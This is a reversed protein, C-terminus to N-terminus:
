AGGGKPGTASPSPTGTGATPGASRAPDSPAAPAEPESPDASAEPESPAASAAPESLGASVAPDSLGAPVVPKSLGAPVARESLDALVAPGSLGASVASESLGAPVARESPDAAVAPESLDALVAPGSLGASVARESLDAGVAPGSLDALVARGVLGASVARESPGAGVAPESLGASVASESPDAPVASAAPDRELAGRVKSGMGVHPDRVQDLLESQNWGKAGKASVALTVPGIRTQRWVYPHTGGDQLHTYDGIETLSDDAFGNGSEGLGAPVDNLSTVMEDARLRQTPCRLTEELVEANEWDALEATRHVTVVASLRVMGRGDSAPIRYSRTLTALVGDPRPRQEWVCDDGLVAWRRPDSEYPNQRVAAPGFDAPGPLVARVLRAAEAGSGPVKDPDIDVAGSPSASPTPSPSPSVAGDRKGTASGDPAGGSTTCGALLLGGAAVACGLRATGGRLVM